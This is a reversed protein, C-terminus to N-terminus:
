LVARTKKWSHITFYGGSKIHYHFHWFLQQFTDKKQRFMKRKAFVPKVPQAATYKEPARREAKRQQGHAARYIHILSLLVRGEVCLFGGDCLIGVARSVSARTVGMRRALDASYVMQKEQELLLVAELYDEGAAHLEM